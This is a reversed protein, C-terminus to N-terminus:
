SQWRGYCRRGYTGCGGPASTAAGGVLARVLLDLGLDGPAPFWTVWSLPIVWLFGCPVRSVGLLRFGALHPYVLPPFASTAKRKKTKTGIYDTQM